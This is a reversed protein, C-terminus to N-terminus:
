ALTYTKCKDGDHSAIVDTYKRLLYNFKGRTIEKPLEDACENWLETSTKPTKDLHGVVINLAADYLAANAAGKETLREYETRIADAIVSTDVTEDNQCFYAYLASLTNKTM